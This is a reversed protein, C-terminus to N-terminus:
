YGQDHTTAWGSQITADVWDTQALCHAKWAEVYKNYPELDKGEKFQGIQVIKSRDFEEPANATFFLVCRVLRDQGVGSGFHLQNLQRLVGQNHKTPKTEFDHRRFALCQNM